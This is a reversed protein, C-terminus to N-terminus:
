LKIARIVKIISTQIVYIQVNILYVMMGHCDSLLNKNQTTKTFHMHIQLIHIRDLRCFSGKLWSLDHANHAASFIARHLALNLNNPSSSNLTSSIQMVVAIVQNQLPLLCNYM